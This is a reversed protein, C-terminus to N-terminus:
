AETTDYMSIYVTQIGTIPLATFTFNVSTSSGENVLIDGIPSFSLPTPPDGAKIHWRCAQEGLPTSHPYGCAFRIPTSFSQGSELCIPPGGPTLEQAFVTSKGSFACIIVIVSILTSLTILRLLKLNM